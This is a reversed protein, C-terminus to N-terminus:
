FSFHLARDAAAGAAAGDAEAARFPDLLPAAVVHGADSKPGKGANSAGARDLGPPVPSPSMAYHAIATTNYTTNQTSAPSQPLWRRM